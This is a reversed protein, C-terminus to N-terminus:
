AKRKICSKLERQVPRGGRVKGGVVEIVGVVVGEDEGEGTVGCAIVGVVVCTVIGAIVVGVV